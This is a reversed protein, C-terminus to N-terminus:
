GVTHGLHSYAFAKDESSQSEQSEFDAGITSLQTILSFTNEKMNTLIAKTTCSEELSCYATYDRAVQKFQCEDFNRFLLHGTATWAEKYDSIPVGFYNTSIETKFHELFAIDDVFWGGLCDTTPKAHPTKHHVHAYLGDVM